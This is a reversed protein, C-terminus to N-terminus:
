NVPRYVGDAYGYGVRPQAEYVGQVPAPQQQKKKQEAEYTQHLLVGAGAVVGAGVNPNHKKLVHGAVAILGPGMYPSDKFSDKGDVFEQKAYSALIGGLLQFGSARVSNGGLGRKGRKM